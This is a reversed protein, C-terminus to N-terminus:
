TDAVGRIPVLGDTGARRKFSPNRCSSASWGEVSAMTPQGLVLISSLPILGELDRPSVYLPM